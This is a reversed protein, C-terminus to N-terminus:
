CHKDGVKNLRAYAHELTKIRKEFEKRDAEREDDLEQVLDALTTVINKITDIKAIIDNM